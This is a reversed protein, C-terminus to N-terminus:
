TVSQCGRVSSPVAGRFAAEGPSSCRFVPPSTPTYRTQLANELTRPPIQGAPSDAREQARTRTAPLISHKLCHARDRFDFRSDRPQRLGLHVLQRRPQFLETCPTCRRWGHLAPELAGDTGGLRPHRSRIYHGERATLFSRTGTRYSRAPGRWRRDWKTAM